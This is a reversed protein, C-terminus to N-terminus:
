KMYSVIAKTYLKDAGIMPFFGSGFIVIGGLGYIGGLPLDFFELSAVVFASGFLITSTNEKRQYKKLYKISNKNDKMDILLNDVKMKKIDGYNRNYYSTSEINYKDKKSYLDLDGYFNLKGVTIRPIFNKKVTEEPERTSKNAFFGYENKFFKVKSALVKTSDAFFYDNSFEPSRFEITDFYVVADNYYYLFYKSEDVKVQSFSLCAHM